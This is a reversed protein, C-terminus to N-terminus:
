GRGMAKTLMSNMMMLEEKNNRIAGEKNNRVDMDEKNMFVVEAHPVLGQGQNVLKGESREEGWHKVMEGIKDSLIKPRGFDVGGEEKRWHQVMEELSSVGGGCSKCLVESRLNVFFSPLKSLGIM